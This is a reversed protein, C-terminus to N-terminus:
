TKNAYTLELLVKYSRSSSSAAIFKVLLNNSSYSFNATGESTNGTILNGADGLQLAGSIINFSAGYEQTTLAQTSSQTFVSIRAIGSVDNPLPSTDFTGITTSSTSNTTGTDDSMYIRSWKSNPGVAWSGSSTAPGQYSLEGSNSYLYIGTSPVASQATVRNGIYVIGAGSSFNPAISSPVLGINANAGSNASAFALVPANSGGVSISDTSQLFELGVSTGVYRLCDTGGVKWHFGGTATAQFTMDINSSAGITMLSSTAEIITTSGRKATWYGDNTTGSGSALILQGGISTAGVENQAHITLVQGTASGASGDTQYFKPASITSDFRFNNDFLDIASSNISIITSSGRRILVSGNSTTGNGSRLDLIGGTSTTGTTDQANIILTDGTIGNTSDTEQSIVPSVVTSDFRVTALLWEAVTDSVTLRATAQPLLSIVGGSSLTIASSTSDGVRVTDASTLSILNYDGNNTVNRATLNTNNPIRIQGTIAPTTGLSINGTTIISQAAFNPAGFGIATGSRRMVDGDTAAAMDGYVGSTNASRGLVSLATGNALKALTVSSGAITTTNSGAPATVDGTLAARQLIQAGTMSLTANLTITELAGTGATDRGLLSDTTITALKSFAIAASTNVDANVIVGSAIATTNSGAAAIIDGSLTDRQLNGAGDMSLTSNLTLSEINGTGTTDCGLLTNTPIQQMKAFSVVNNALTPDPYTGTLDGGAIGTPQARNTTWTPNASTSHTTLVYGDTSPSLQVWNTGNFYLISGQQESTITLDTVTSTTAGASVSVDGTIASRRIGTSGTFELGGSVTLEEVNGTSATDRGLLRDTTIQQFKAFTTKNTGITPNPYSGTLDGGAAGSPPGGLGTVNDWTPNASAGHTVLAYGDTSPSLKVWNSGNFYLVSGQTEGTITLDTVTPNPLTGNLDGGLAASYLGDVYSKNTADTSVLPTSVETIRHSNVDLFGNIILNDNITVYGDASEIVDGISLIIDYGDTTNGFSLTSGLSQSGAVSTVLKYKLATGADNLALVYGPLATALSSTTGADFIAATGSNVNIKLNASANITTDYSSHGLTFVDTNTAGYDFLNRTIGGNTRTKWIFGNPTRVDGSTPLTGSGIGLYSGDTKVSSAYALNGALGFAVKNDDTPNVPANLSSGGTAALDFDTGASNTFFITTPSTNKVWLSGHGVLAGIGATRQQFLLTAGSTIRPSVSGTDASISLTNNWSPTSQNLVWDTATDDTFILKKDGSREWLVSKGATALIPISGQATFRSGSIGDIYGSITANGAVSVPDDFEILSGQSQIHSTTSLILHDGSSFTIDSGGTVSGNQLVQALNGFNESGGGGGEGDILYWFEAIDSSILSFSNLWTVTTGSVTYDVGYTQKEGNIFMMVTTIDSPTDSLTFSIQSTSVPLSEQKPEGSGSGGILTIQAVGPGSQIITANIFDLVSAESVVTSGDSRIELTGSGNGGGSGTELNHLKTDLDDLRARVTAYTGSPQLGLEAEVAIIAGRLTNPVLSKVQTVLDTSLPIETNTDIQNPYKTAM